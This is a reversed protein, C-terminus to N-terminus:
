LVNLKKFEKFETSPAYLNDTAVRADLLKGKYYSLVECKVSECNNVLPLRAAKVCLEEIYEIDYSSLPEKKQKDIFIQLEPKLRKHFFHNVNEKRALSDRHNTERPKGEEFILGQNAIVLLQPSSNDESLEEVDHEGQILENQYFHFSKTKEGNTATMHYAALPTEYQLIKEIEDVNNALEACYRNFFLSPMGEVKETKEGNSVNIEILLNNENVVTLSGSTLPHTVDFTRKGGAIHKDVQLFYNGALGYAPWDLVRTFFTYDGVRIAVTTCAMSPLDIELKKQFPNYNRFDPLLQMLLYRAFSLRPANSNNKRHWTNYGAVKGRMENQYNQPITKLVDELASLLEKDETPVGLLPYIPKFLLEMRQWNIQMAQALMYGEVFGADFYKKSEIKLLPLHKEDLTLKGQATRFHFESKEYVKKQHDVPMGFIYNQMLSTTASFLTGGVGVIKALNSPMFMFPASLAGVFYPFYKMFHPHQYSLQMLSEVYNLVPSSSELYPAQFNRDQM